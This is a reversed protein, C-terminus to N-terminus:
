LRIYLAANLPANLPANAEKMESGRNLKQGGRKEMGWIRDGGGGGGGKQICLGSVMVPMLIDSENGVLKLSM